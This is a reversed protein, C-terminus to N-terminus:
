ASAAWTAADVAFLSSQGLNAATAYLFKGDASWSLDSPSRDWTETLERPEGDPWSRSVIRFRDSEYGPRAMALYAM